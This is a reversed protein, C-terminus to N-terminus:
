QVLSSPKIFKTRIRPLWLMRTSKIQNCSKNILRIDQKFSIKEFVQLIKHVWSSSLEIATRSIFPWGTMFATLWNTKMFSLGLAFLRRPLHRCLILLLLCWPVALRLLDWLYWTTGWRLKSLILFRISFHMAFSWKISNFPVCLIGQNELCCSFCIWPRLTNGSSSMFTRILCTKCSFEDFFFKCFSSILRILIIHLLSSMGFNHPDEQLSLLYKASVNLKAV